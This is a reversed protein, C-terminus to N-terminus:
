KNQLPILSLDVDWDCHNVWESEDMPTLETKDELVTGFAVSLTRPNFFACFYIERAGENWNTNAFRIASKQLVSQSQSPLSALLLQDFQLALRNQLDQDLQLIQNVGSLFKQAYDHVSLNMKNLSNVLNQYAQPNKLVPSIFQNVGQAVQQKMAPLVIQKSLTLGPSILSQNIWQAASKKSQLFSVIDPNAPMFNFAHQPSEMPIM